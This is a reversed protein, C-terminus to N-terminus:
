IFTVEFGKIIDGEKLQYLEKIGDKDTTQIRPPFRYSMVSKPNAVGFPVCDGEEKIAFEHRLGLVHGLEHLLIHEIYNEDEIFLASHVYLISIDRTPFFAEAYDGPLSTRYKMYFNIRFKDKSFAFKVGFDIKNWKKVAKNLAIVAKKLSSKNPFSSEDVGFRIVTGVPWLSIKGENGVVLAEDASPQSICKYDDKRDVMEEFEKEELFTNNFIERLREAPRSPYWLCTWKEKGLKDKEEELWEAPLEPFTCEEYTTEM